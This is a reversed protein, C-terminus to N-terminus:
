AGAPARSLPRPLPDTPPEGQDLAQAQAHEADIAARMRSLVSEPLVARGSPSPGPRNAGPVRRSLPTGVGDDSM